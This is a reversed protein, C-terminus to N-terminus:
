ILIKSLIVSIMIKADSLGYMKGKQPCKRPSSVWKKPIPQELCM